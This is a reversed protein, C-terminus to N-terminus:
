AAAEPQIGESRDELEDAAAHLAALTEGDPEWYGRDCAELVRQAMRSAAHPNLDALRARMTADLVFTEGFRAYVWPQVDGTTASWGLTTTLRTEIERVGQHGHALMGEYWRPNLTRTRAELAVQEALSRVTGRGRTEDGIFADVGRDAAGRAAQTLGGLSDVYQDLDSVGLEVSELNQYTADVRALLGQFLAPRHLATGDAGYAFSKRRAFSAGLEDSAEWTSADVMLNVNAGYAGDANSFVRLAATRLDCGEAEALALAHARVPNLELPEDASAALWAAEALLRTQLPLLDRFVGSTTVVVDVRSRGLEDLPILRAGCLRGYADFRPEAGILALVQALPAGDRKLNDSGWLVIGLSRPPDGRDDSLRALLREAQLRGERVAAASPMRYPDFAYLNRGTPLIEPRRLVDGGPAPPVFAGDLAHVLADLEANSGLARTLDELGAALTEGDESALGAEGLRRRLASRPAGGSALDACARREPAPLRAGADTGEMWADLLDTREEPSPARGLVHLGHPILSEELERLQARLRELRVVDWGEGDADSALDLARAQAEATEALVTREAAQAVPDITFFRDLTTRLDLLGRYLGAQMVPPTLHSVLTAGARRKALTGESPNNAAYLYLNPVDGMLRDPWCAGSLGAQKGPMFEVAGHTGFHLYADADLETQLWRYFAVFAHTPAFGGEFLLRMPDGEVGFPPQVGVFVNGFREGQVLLHRGDQLHRGPAPGWVKEIESLWPLDRVHADVPVRAHVNASTGYREANGGLLRSRLAEVDPPVDVDYGEDRLRALLAHLSRFVDLYAATG